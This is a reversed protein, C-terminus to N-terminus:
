AVGALESVSAEAHASQPRKVLFWERVSKPTLTLIGDLRGQAPVERSLTAKFGFEEVRKWIARLDTGETTFGDGKPTLARRVEGQLFFEGLGVSILYPMHATVKQECEPGLVGLGPFLVGPRKLARGCVACCSGKMKTAKKVPM